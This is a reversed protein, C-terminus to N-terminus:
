QPKKYSVSNPKKRRHYYQKKIKIHRIVKLLLKLCDRKVTTILKSFMLGAETKYEDFPDASGIEKMSIWEKLYEMNHLHSRWGKDIRHILIKRQIIDISDNPIKKIFDRYNHRIKESVFPLLQDRTNLRLMIPDKYTESTLLESFRFLKKIETPNLQIKDGAIENIFQQLVEEILLNVFKAYDNTFLVKDRWKNYERRHLDLVEDYKLIKMRENFCELEYKEQINNFFKKAWSAKIEPPSVDLKIRLNKVEEKAHNIIFDDEFSLFFQTFGFDGARGSKGKILEELRQTEQKETCLVAIGGIKNVGIGLKIEIGRALYNTILTVAAKEGAFTLYDVDVKQLKGNLLNHKIGSQKLFFSIKECQRTNGVYVIVPQGKAHLNKIESVVVNIKDEITKFVRTPADIRESVKNSPIKYVKMNMSSKIEEAEVELYSCLGCTKQYMGFFKQLTIKAFTVDENQIKLREKAELAQHLGDSFKKGPIKKRSNPDLVVLKNRDIAYDYDKHYLYYAELAKQVHHVWDLNDPGYLNDLNIYREIKKIGQETLSIVREKDDIVYDGSEDIFKGQSTRQIPKLRSVIRNVTTYLNMYEKQDGSIIIPNKGEDLLIYDMDDLIVCNLDRQVKGDYRDTLNDWLFDYAIENFPAYTIDTKYAYRREKKRMRNQICSTRVGLLAYVSSLFQSDRKSLYDNATVIHVGKGTLANLYAPLIAIITKGEGPPVIACGGQHLAIGSLIQNDYHRYKITRKSAERVLAYAEPLLDDLKQGKQVLSKLQETKKPFDPDKLLQVEKELSNVNKLISQIDRYKFSAKVKDISYKIQNFNM